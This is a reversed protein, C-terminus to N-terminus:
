TFRNSGVVGNFTLLNDTGWHVHSKLINFQTGIGNALYTQLDQFLVNAIATGTTNLGWRIGSPTPTLTGAQLAQLDTQWTPLLQQNGFPMRFSLATIDANLRNVSGTAAFRAAAQRIGIRGDTGFLVSQYTNSTFNIASQSAGVNVGFVFPITRNVFGGGFVPVTATHVVLAHNQVLAAPLMAVQSM